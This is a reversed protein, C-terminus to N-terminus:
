YISGYWENSGSSVHEEVNLNFNVMGRKVTDGFDKYLISIGNSPVCQGQVFGKLRVDEYINLVRKDYM